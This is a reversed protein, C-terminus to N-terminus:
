QRRPTASTAAPEAVAEKGPRLWTWASQFDAFVQVEPYAPDALWARMTQIRESQTMVGVGRICLLKWEALISYALPM